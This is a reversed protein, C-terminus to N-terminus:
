KSHPLETPTPAPVLPSPQPDLSPKPTVPATREVPLSPRINEAPREYRDQDHWEKYQEATETFRLPCEAPPPKGHRVVRNTLHPISRFYLEGGIRRVEYFEAFDGVEANWLAVQTVDQSWIAYDAWRDFVAEITTLERPETARRAPQPAAVVIPRPPEEHRPLAWIFAAGLVFGLMVWSPTKSLQSISPRHPPKEADM